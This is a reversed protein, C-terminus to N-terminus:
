AAAAYPALSTRGLALLARHLQAVRPQTVGLIVAAESQSYGEVYLLRFTEQLRPSLDGIWRAVARVVCPDRGDDEIVLAEADPDLPDLRSLDPASLGAALVANFITKRVYSPADRRAVPISAVRIRAEQAFDDADALVGRLRAQRRAYRLIHADWARVFAASQASPRARDGPECLAVVAM